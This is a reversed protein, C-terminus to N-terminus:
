KVGLQLYVALTADLIHQPAFRTEAERLANDSLWNHYGADALLPRLAEALADSSQTSAVAGTKGDAVIEPLCGTPFAVVPTGVSFFEVAVRCIVESAISSVIGVDAFAMLQRIDEREADMRVHTAVGLRQLDAQVAQLEPNKSLTDRYLLLLTLKPFEALLQRFAELLLRVGKEPRIRGVFALVTHDNPIKFEARYDPLENNSSDASDEAPYYIVYPHGAPLDLVNRLQQAVVEGVAITADTWDGYLKQNLWNQQLPRATGRTRVLPIGLKRKAFALLPYGESRHAHILDIQHTQLFDCLQHYSRFWQLPNNSNLNIETLTRLGRAQLKEANLSDPRTLVWVEHGADQLLAALTTAYAAEANWWHVNSGILLNM